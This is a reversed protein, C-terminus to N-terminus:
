SAHRRRLAFLGLGVAAVAVVAAAGLTTATAVGGGGMGMGALSSGAGGGSGAGSRGTGLLRAALAAGARHLLGPPRPLMSIASYRATPPTPLLRRVAERLAAPSCASLVKERAEMNRAYVAGLDGGLLQYSKSQYGTVVVEHWYTNEAQSNEFALRELNALTDAEAQSVEAEQLLAVEELALAVLRDKNAPDCSFAIAVDGRPDGDQSPAVCGFFPSVAVTYVDGGVFRLRQLLRTELLRCTLSLWVLEERATPRNLIVPFTIQSQAVPSVMSVKVDEVVPEEPFSYPLPTVEKAPKPPPLGTRPITALYRCLLPELAERDVNGTFVLTFEAPNKWSLNHHALALAPDIHEFEEMTMQKFYYCGGYNVFRVRQHYAHLPNRLQAELGQQVLKVAMAVEDPVLRVQTTFLLHVLQLATELDGPSQVGRMNRYYAGESTELDVRRGALVDGLVDPRLGFVGLHGALTGALSATPFLELPVESLGGLAFGTIHVEDRMFATPKIAVRMGNCLTLETVHLPAPWSREAVVAEGPPLPEPLAEPAILADPTPPEEWPGIAHSAEAAAVRELVQKLEAETCDRSHGVVKVVCSDGPRCKCACAEVAGRTIRPLLTKSLRAEYEQGTVFEDHLFHRVYEDRIDMCYGQDAELATNEIDAVLEAEARALEAPSLGHLRVRAVETLLAELAPLAQGELATASLVCSGATACLPEDSVSASAFPPEPLRTLKYLRNNLAIEFLALALHDLFDSPTSIRMRPHKYSVYVLPHETERDVLVKYRPTEHPAYDFRPLPPPPEPSRSAAAGLHRTILGVVSDLDAFDGVAVLAMHQPRYWRGHFARVAGATCRRIVSELGIPLRDGYRSGQFILQWHAEQLRGGADRSMRWEELVAGREKSLDAPDCRIKFAMEAMVGLTEDLLGEKDTPVTLTYVTEDASTYANQCAGFEAGIRELLRVIDHNSYSDTANFALHEVIHAMGRESEEEVVSGVRVALALACRGKPKACHRVYYRMGNDLTGHRLGEPGLPLQAHYREGEVDVEELQDFVRGM